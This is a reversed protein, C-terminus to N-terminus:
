SGIRKVCEESWNQLDFFCSVVFKIRGCRRWEEVLFSPFEFVSKSDICMIYNEHKLIRKLNGLPCCGVVNLQLNSHPKTSLFACLYTTENKKQVLGPRSNRVGWKSESLYRTGLFRGATKAPQFFIVLNSVFRREHLKEM